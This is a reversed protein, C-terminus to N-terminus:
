QLAGRQQSRLQFVEMRIDKLESRLEAFSEGCYDDDFVRVKKAKGKKLTKKVVAHKKGRKKMGAKKAKKALQAFAIHIESVKLAFYGVVVGVAFALGIM